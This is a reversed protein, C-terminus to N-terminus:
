ACPDREDLAAFYISALEAAVVRAYPDGHPDGDRGFDVGGLSELVTDHGAANQGVLYARWTEWPDCVPGGDEGREIWDAATIEPDVGWLCVLGEARARREAAALEQARRVRGQAKTERAPDYSCGAHKLFFHYPTLNRKM